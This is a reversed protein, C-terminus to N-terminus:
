PDTKKLLEVYLKMLIEYYLQHIWNPTDGNPHDKNQINNSSNNDNTSYNNNSNNNWQQKQQQESIHNEKKIKSRWNQCRQFVCRQKKPKNIRENHTHQRSMPTSPKQNQNKHKQFIDKKTNTRSAIKQPVFKKM